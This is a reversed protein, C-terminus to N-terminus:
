VCPTLLSLHCSGFSVAKLASLKSNVESIMSKEKRIRDQLSAEFSQAHDISMPDFNYREEFLKAKLQLQKIKSIRELEIEVDEQPFKTRVNDKHELVREEMLKLENELPMLLPEKGLGNSVIDYYGRVGTKAVTKKQLRLVETELYNVREKRADAITKLEVISARGIGSSAKGEELSMQLADRQGRIRTLDVDLKKLQSEMEKFHNVQEYDLDRIFRRRNSSLDETNMQLDHCIDSLHNCKDKQYTRSQFLQRCLPAKYIRSEPVCVLDMQLKSIQKKLGIRDEKIMEIDHLRQDLM